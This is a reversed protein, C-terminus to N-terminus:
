RSPFQRRTQCRHRRPRADYQERNLRNITTRGPDPIDCDCPYLLNELYTAVMKRETPTPQAKNPPPMVWNEVQYKITDWVKIDKLVSAETLYGELSLDGKETGDGHCDYCYNEFFPLVDAKWAPAGSVISLVTAHLLLLLLAARVM